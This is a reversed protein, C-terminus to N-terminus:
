PMAEQVIKAVLRLTLLVMDPSNYCGQHDYGHTAFMQKVKGAPGAGSQHPVTGDGRTDQQEPEFHLETKGDVLVLRRGEPTHGLYQAAAVNSATLATGSGNRLQAIWRMQGFSKKGNDDGYFAYTNPHYYDGLSKHFQEAKDIAMRITEEVSGRKQKRYKGAPDALAPDILRYWPSMDRYLKYVDPRQENPLHLYDYNTERFRLADVKGEYSPAFAPGLGQKVRVHLWPGPYLHNPLLELAGPSVALVPTTKDTTEGLINATLAAEVNQLEDNSPSSGETGCAMRRYAAPAGLAPMAGHIVGAIKDPIRQACARAVLGGMSHTVIIVKECNRKKSKWFGIIDLIRQELRQSSIACSELWNYGCAYVPFHYNAHKELHAETLPEFDRLGWRRPDCAMVEKWHRPVFRQQKDDDYGFAHNLHTELALLLGGYSGAHVEGWGRGRVEDDTLIYDLHSTPLIIPGSDDVELTPADFMLQRKKPDRGEWLRAAKVGEVKGNPPRWASEGPKLIENREDEKRGLNPKRRARLNTGMVGPVVVVPIVNNSPILALGRITFAEPTMYSYVSWGGNELPTPIPLPRTPDPM